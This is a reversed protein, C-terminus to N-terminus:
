TRCIRSQLKSLKNVLHNKGTGRCCRGIKVGVAISNLAEGASDMSVESDASEKKSMMPAAMSKRSMNRYRRSDRSFNYFNYGFWDLHDFAPTEPDRLHDPNWDREYLTLEHVNFGNVSHWGLRAYMSNYFSAYWNNARFEDLSADYLTAVMEAAIKDATKGKILIKWEESAGPL